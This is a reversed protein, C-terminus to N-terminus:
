GTTASSGSTAARPPWGTRDATWGSRHEEAQALPTALEARGDVEVLGDGDGGCGAAAGLALTVILGALVPTLTTRM